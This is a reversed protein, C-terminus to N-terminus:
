EDDDGAHEVKVGVNILDVLNQQTAVQVAFMHRTVHGRAIAHNAASVLRCTKNVVDTVVYIRRKSKM